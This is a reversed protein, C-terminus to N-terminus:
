GLEVTTQDNQTKLLKILHIISLRFDMAVILLM